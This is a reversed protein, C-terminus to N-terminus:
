GLVNGKLAAELLQSLNPKMSEVEARRSHEHPKLPDIEAV